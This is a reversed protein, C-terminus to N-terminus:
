FLHGHVLVRNGIQVLFEIAVQTLVKHALEPLHDQVKLVHIHIESLPAPNAHAANFADNHLLLGPGDAFLLLHLLAIVLADVLVKGSERMM